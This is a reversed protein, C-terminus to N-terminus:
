RKATQWCGAMRAGATLIPMFIAPGSWGAPNKAPCRTSFPPWGGAIATVSRLIGVTKMPAIHSAVREASFLNKATKDPVNGFGTERCALEALRAAEPVVARAMANVIRDVDAQGLSRM